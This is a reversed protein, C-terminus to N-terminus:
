IAFRGIPWKLTYHQVNCFLSSTCSARGQVKEIAVTDKLLM